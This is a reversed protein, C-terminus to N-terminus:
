AASKEGVRVIETDSLDSGDSEEKSPASRADLLRNRSPVRLM